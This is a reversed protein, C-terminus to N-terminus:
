PRFLTVDLFSLIAPSLRYATPTTAYTATFNQRFRVVSTFGSAAAIRTM